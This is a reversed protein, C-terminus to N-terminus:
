LDIKEGGFGIKAEFDWLRFINIDPTRICYKTSRAGVGGFGGFYLRLLHQDSFFEVFFMKEIIKIHSLFSIGSTEWVKM